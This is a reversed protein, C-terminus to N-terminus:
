EKTTAPYTMSICHISGFGRVLERANVPIVRFGLREYAVIAEYDERVDFVPLYVTGNIQLSNLYTGNFIEPKPLLVVEFGKAKLYPIYSKTDTFAVKDSIIKVREDVHGIGEVFPLRTITRCGYFESLVQDPLDKGTRHDILFCNGKSDSAFNGGEYFYPHKFLIADTFDAFFLDAEYHHYYKADVLKLKQDFGIVPVPLADRAWFNNGLSSAQLVEFDAGPPFHDRWINRVLDTYSSATYIVPIVNSPLNHLITKKVQESGFVNSDAFFLYKAKEYEAWPRAVKGLAMSSLPTLQGLETKKINLQRNHEMAKKILDESPTLYQQSFLASSFSGLLFLLSWKM